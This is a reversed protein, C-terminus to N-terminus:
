GHPGRILDEEAGVLRNERTQFIEDWTLVKDDHYQRQNEIVSMFLELLQGLERTHANGEPDIAKLSIQEPSTLTVTRFKWGDFLNTSRTNGAVLLHPRRLWGGLPVVMQLHLGSLEKVSPPPEEGPTLVLEASVAKEDRDMIGLARRGKSSHIRWLEYGKRNKWWWQSLWSFPWSRIRDSSIAHVALIVFFAIVLALQTSAVFLLSFWELSNEELNSAARIEVIGSLTILVLIAIGALVKLGGSPIPKYPTLDKPFPVSM